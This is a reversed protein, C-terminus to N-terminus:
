SREGDPWLLVYDPHLENWVYAKLYRQIRAEKAKRMGANHVLILLLATVPMAAYIMADQM